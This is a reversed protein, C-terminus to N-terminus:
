HSYMPLPPAWLLAVFLFGREVTSRGIGPISRATVPREPGFFVLFDGSHPNEPQKHVNERLHAQSGREPILFARFVLTLKNYKNIYRLLQDFDNINLM